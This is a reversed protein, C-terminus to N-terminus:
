EIITARILSSDCQSAEEIPSCYLASAYNTAPHTTANVISLYAEFLPLPPSPQLPMYSRTALSPPLIILAKTHIKLSYILSPPHDKPLRTSARM